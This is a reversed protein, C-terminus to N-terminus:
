RRKEGKAGYYKEKDKYMMEDSERLLESVPKNGDPNFSYGISCSYETESVYKKIQEVIQLVEEKPTKRCLIIFEDGGIRYGSQRNKLPRTFCLSLTVLAEDGAAHGVEDNITKLGNMDISIIATISKPDDNVDSFYAHRNLLGTLSDKKSLQIYTFEFYAFLAIAITICFITAYEGKFIFPLVLGSGLAFASFAIYVIEMLRKTSRKILLYILFIGYLGVMIFPLYGLPGYFLHSNEDVRFVIETFISVVNLIVLVLAPIFIFWRIRKVLTFCIQAIILPTASYRVAALITRVMRYEPNGAVYFEVFVVISLLFVAAVLIYMRTTTKKDLFVTSLLAIIFAILILLLPWNQLFYEKVM